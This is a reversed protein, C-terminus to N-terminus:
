PLAFTIRCFAQRAPQIRSNKYDVEFYEFKKDFLNTAGVTLIGYRNPLRYGIAADVLCFEDQGSEFTTTPFRNFIGSQYYYTAQLKAFLGFPHFFNVGFPVSHTEVKRADTLNVKDDYIFKEYGYEMRFALWKHPIWYLYARGLYENWQAEKVVPTGELFSYWPVELDRRYFEAGAYIKQSLKQDVAAGYVWAETANGDDFFQNFGAVQTPELTQDTILTRKLTRFVAGRVTTGDFPTWTAGFKPNFQNKDLDQGGIKDDSKYFDGSAGFTITLNRLPKIYSYFYVNYHNVDEEFRSPFTFLFSPTMGPWYFRNTFLSESHIRFAGAGSVIDVYKSRNLYSLEGSFADDKGDFDYFDEVPPPTLGFDAPDLFLRNFQYYPFNSYQFNGILISGPSFAHRGGVRLTKVQTEERFFPLDNDRFFNLKVDERLSDRYRYEAQISTQPSLELQLFANAINDKQEANPKWGETRFDTYGVSFSAKKYIGSLVGEGGYTSNEGGLLSGQFAVQDRNFLPNYENFSLTGPGGTSMLALNSEALRPQIPNINSPQLLQSQLLESVRAIEHRPRSSYSDALFRHASYNTPDTNLSNWGEALARQQFGLDTYIRAISASRAALDEDLVLRSRFVARNDNLEISKQLDQLAEVPRNLTQKQIADYFWPTPDLPDLEKALTFQNAALKGRKEEYYAKGLYSRMLSNNPDLSVAIEIDGRGEDLNGDRIRALGLGLRPLPDAQDLLIAKEFAERSEKTKIQTLYAFGLVTQTRALHPNLSAAEQAAKLARDLYGLSLHLEAIRAWTLANGPDLKLSEEMSSLASQLDFHAQQAYSLATKAAPSMPSLREAKSALEIAEDKRNQTLAVISRLAFADGNSPDLQLARELDLMARDARGVSLFLGARYVFFRPDEVREAIEGIASLARALDGQWYFEMSRRVMAQWGGDAGGQFDKPQYHLIFPYYLAWHVADRPRVEVRPIPPQNALAIATQGSGLVLTGAKNEALLKGEFVSLLARDSEVKVFFETGETTGNVFPTAIRLTRPIRSFFYVAGRIIDILSTREKEPASLTITTNQDLRLIIDNPLVISARSNEHLRIMDGPRYTDNLKVTAWHSTGALRAEVHGQLSGIKALWPEEVEAGGAPLARSAVLLATLILFGVQVRRM